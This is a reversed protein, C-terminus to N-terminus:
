QNNFDMLLKLLFMRACVNEYMFGKNKIESQIKSIRMVVADRYRVYSNHKVFPYDGAHLICTCDCPGGQRVSSINITLVSM